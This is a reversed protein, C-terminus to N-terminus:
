KDYAFVYMHTHLNHTCTYKHTLPCTHLNYLQCFNKNISKLSNIQTSNNQQRYKCLSFRFLNMFVTITFM